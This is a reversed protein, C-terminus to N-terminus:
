GTNALVEDIRRSRDWQEASPEGEWPFRVVVRVDRYGAAALPQRIFDAVAAAAARRAAAMNADSRSRQEATLALRESAQRQLAIGARSSIWPGQQRVEAHAMDIAPAEVSVDPVRVTMIRREADWRYDDAGIRRLDLMYDVAFPARTEQESRFITGQNTSRALATGTLRAVRLERAQTFVADLVRAADLGLQREAQEARRYQWAAVGALAVAALVVLTLPLRNRATM